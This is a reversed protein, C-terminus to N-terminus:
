IATIDATKFQPFDFITLGLDNTRRWVPNLLASHIEWGSTIFVVLELGTNIATDLLSHDISYPEATVTWRQNRYATIRGIVSL